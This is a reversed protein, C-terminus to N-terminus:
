GMSEVRVDRPAGAVAALITAGRFRDEVGLEFHLVDDRPCCVPCIRQSVQGQSATGTVKALPRTLAGAVRACAVQNREEIRSQIDPSFMELDAQFGEADLPKRGDPPGGGM